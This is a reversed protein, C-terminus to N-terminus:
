CVNNGSALSGNNYHIYKKLIKLEIHIYQKDVLFYLM